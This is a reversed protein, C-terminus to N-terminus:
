STGCLAPGTQVRWRNRGYKTVGRGRSAREGRRPYQVNFLSDKRHASSRPISVVVPGFFNLSMCKMAHSLM